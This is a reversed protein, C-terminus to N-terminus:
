LLFSHIISLLKETSSPYSLIFLNNSQLFSGVATIATFSKVAMPAILAAFSLPSLTGSSM